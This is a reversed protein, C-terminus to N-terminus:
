MPNNKENKNKMKPGNDSRNRKKEEVRKPKKSDNKNGRQMLSQQSSIINEIM